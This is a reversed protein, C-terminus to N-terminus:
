CLHYGEGIVDSVSVMSSSNVVVRATRLLSGLNEPDGIVPDRLRGEDRHGIRFSGLEFGRHSTRELRGQM